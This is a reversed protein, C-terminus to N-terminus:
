APSLRINKAKIDDLISGIWIGENAEVNMSSGNLGPIGYQELKPNRKGGAHHLAICDWYQDFVPSGSSGKETSASYHVRRRAPNPPRGTPECEHDVLLNDQLSFQMTDGLPYGIVYVRARDEVKAITRGLPLPELADRPGDLRLVAYDLNKDDSETVIEKAAFTSPGNPAAEFTIEVNSFDARGALGSRNLVHFNTLLFIEAEPQLGCTAGRVAFGTGFRLGLRESIAAVASARKLGTRYWEVTMRGEPGALRQLQAEDVSELSRMAAVHGPAMTLIAGPRSVLTAELMQLLRAGVENEQIRWIERLQRLTSALEFPTTEPDDLYLRLAKEAEGWEGRAIHGEAKTAAWWQDRKSPPMADLSALLTTAHEAASPGASTIGRQAAAHALASLNVGHWFYRAPDRQYASRYASASRDLFIPALSGEPDVTDILLQKYARGLLGEFEAYEPHSVDFHRLTGQLFEVAATLRKTEILGQAYLRRIKADEIRFRCVCEALECLRGYDRLDRLKPLLAVAEDIEPRAPRTLLLQCLLDARELLVSTPSRDQGTM